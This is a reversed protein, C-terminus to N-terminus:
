KRGSPDDLMEQKSLVLAVEKVETIAHKEADGISISGKVIREVLPKPDYLQYGQGGLM